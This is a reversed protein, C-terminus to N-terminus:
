RGSSRFDIVTIIKNNSKVLDTIADNSSFARRTPQEKTGFSGSPSRGKENQTELDSPSLIEVTKKM